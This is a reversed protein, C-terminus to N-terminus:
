EDDDIDFDYNEYREDEILWDTLEELYVISNNDETLSYVSQLNGYGNFYFWPDSFTYDGFYAAKIADSPRGFVDNIVDEENEYIVDDPCCDYAYENWLYMLEEADMEYMQNILMEKLKEDTM